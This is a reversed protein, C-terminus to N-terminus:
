HADLRSTDDVGFSLYLPDRELDGFHCIEGVVLAVLLSAGLIIIACALVFFM